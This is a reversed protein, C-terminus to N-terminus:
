ATGKALAADIYANIQQTPAAAYNARVWALSARLREIEEGKACLADDAERMIDADDTRCEEDSAYARLGLRQSLTLPKSM